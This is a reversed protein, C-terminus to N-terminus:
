KRKREILGAERLFVSPYTKRQQMSGFADFFIRTKCHTIYLVKEARTMGVYCLRREEEIGEPNEAVARSHPLINTEVGIMFVIPFELGKASHLTMLSVKDDEIEKDSNTMLSVQQLYKELGDAFGSFKSAAEIVQRVNDRRDIFSEEGYKRQLFREYDLEKIISALCFGPRSMDYKMSYINILKRCVNTIKVSNTTKLFVKMADIININQEESIKEIKGVTVNGIGKLIDCLRHFAVGDRKNVLLRIMALCDKAERRDYFNRGGVVEYAIGKNTLAQEMPESMKNIRYLIAIDSADWGGVKVLKRIQESVWNAEASQNPMEICKVPEGSPNDTEFVTEVITKNKKILTDAVKVIEPTSRYNKSLNITKCNPYQKQFNKVNRYNAGRWGYISNHSVVGNAIYNHYEDIDLDYVYGTYKDLKRDVVTDMIIEGDSYIAIDDGVKIDNAHVFDCENNNFTAIEVLNIYSGGIIKYIEQFLSYIYGLSESEGVLYDYGNVNTDFNFLDNCRLIKLGKKQLYKKLKDNRFIYNFQHKGGNTGGCQNIIFNDPIHIFTDGFLKQQCYFIHESTARVTKGKKTTIEWIDENYIFRKYKYDVKCFLNGDNSFVKINDDFNIEEINKIGNETEIKTGDVFCQNIDGILMINQWRAGLLNVLHYQSINTDQTEDVLIYKFCAQLKKRIEEYVEILNISDYLLGSFDVLHKKKLKKFYEKAIDIYDQIYAKEILYNPHDLNDRSKNILNMIDYGTNKDIDYGSQRATQLILDLQEKDDIITFDSPYGNIPGMKRLITAGLSHFTGIFFGPEKIGLRKCIREKMENAAKNTFTICLINKPKIGRNILRVIREVLVATKGSGPCSTVLVPGDLHNAAEEQFENFKLAM